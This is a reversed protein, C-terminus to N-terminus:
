NSYGDSVSWPVSLYPLEYQVYEKYVVGGETRQHMIKGRRFTKNVPPWEERPYKLQEMHAWRTLDVPFHNYSIKKKRTGHLCTTNMNFLWLRDRSHLPLYSSRRRYCVCFRWLSVHYFIFSPSHSPRSPPLFTNPLWTWPRKTGEAESENERNSVLGSKRNLIISYIGFLRNIKVTKM